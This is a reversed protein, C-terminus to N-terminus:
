WETRVPYRTIHTDPTLITMSGAIAQCILIRDFPDKHYEPLRSLQLVAAEDLALTEIRHRTRNNKIFEHSPVPLPLKGLNHKVIIEWASAVSLYVDNDPDAFLRRANESLDPSDAVLWLFTCTDLLINM